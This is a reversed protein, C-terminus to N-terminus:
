SAPTPQFCKFTQQRHWFCHYRRWHSCNDVLDGAFWRGDATDRGNCTVTCESHNDRTRNWKNKNQKYWRTSQLLWSIPQSSQRRCLRYLKMHSTLGTSVIVWKTWTGTLFFNVSTLVKELFSYFTLRWCSSAIYDTNVKTNLTCCKRNDLLYSVPLVFHWIVAFNFQVNGILLFWNQSHLSHLCSPHHMPNQKQRGPGCLM